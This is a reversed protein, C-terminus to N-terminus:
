DLIKKWAGAYSVPTFGLAVNIALMHENEEANFTTIRPSEPVLERWRLLNVCKVITGLAHGRHEALVLTGWQSSAATHDAQITLENYAAITGTPVHEVCAISVTLGEAQLRADRRRVREADWKQEDVVLGGQPVDTSMRSMAYALGEQYPEPTPSTWAIPRYDAGAKALATELMREVTDFSGQLDFASTREVQELTYGNELQFVTQRDEAPVSGFGTSPVLPPGSAEARHLTFIQITGRGIARAEDEVAQLLAEEAGEGWRDPDVWLEFEATEADEEKPYVLKAFGLIVGDREAAFGAHGWDSEDHWWALEGHAEYDLDSHGADRRCAANAIRIFDLFAGADPADLSEPITLRSVTLHPLAIDTM